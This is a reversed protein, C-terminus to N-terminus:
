TAAPGRIPAGDAGDGALAERQRNSPQHAVRRAAPLLRTDRARSRQSRQDGAMAPRGPRRHHQRIAAGTLGRYSGMDAPIVPLGAKQAAEYEDPTLGAKGSQIDKLIFNGARTAAEQEPRFYAGITNMVPRGFADYLFGGAKELGKGVAAGAAGGIVGEGAGTM